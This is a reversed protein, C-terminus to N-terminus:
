PVKFSINPVPASTFMRLKVSGTLVTSGLLNSLRYGSGSNLGRVGGSNRTSGSVIKCGGSNGGRSMLLETFISGGSKTNSMALGKTVCDLTESKKDCIPPPPPPPEKEFKNDGLLM